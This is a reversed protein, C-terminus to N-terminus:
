SAIGLTRITETFIPSSEHISEIIFAKKSGVLLRRLPKGESVLTLRPKIRM